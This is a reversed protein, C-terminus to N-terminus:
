IRYKRSKANRRRRSYKNKTKRQMKNRKSQRRRQRRRTKSKNGGQNDPEPEEDLVNVVNPSKQDPVHIVPLFSTTPISVMIGNIDRYSDVTDRTEYKSLVDPTFALSPM